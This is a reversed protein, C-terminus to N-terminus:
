RKLDRYFNEHPDLKLLTLTITDAEYEYVLLTLQGAMKFKHIYIDQLDGKKGQGIAPDAIIAEIAAKLDTKQNRHLKKVAKKFQPKQLLNM